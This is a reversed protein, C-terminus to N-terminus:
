KRKPEPIPEPEPEPAPKELKGKLLENLKNKSISNDKAANQISMKAYLHKDLWKLPNEIMENQSKEDILSQSTFGINVFISFAKQDNENYIFNEHASVEASSYSPYEDNITAREDIDKRLLGYLKQTFKDGSIKFDNRYVVHFADNEKVVFEMGLEEPKFTSFMGQQSKHWRNVEKGLIKRLFIELVDLTQVVQFVANNSNTANIKQM